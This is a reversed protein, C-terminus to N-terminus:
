FFQNHIWASFEEKVSKRYARSISIEADNDMILINKKFERIASFSVIYSNHCRIFEQHSLREYIMNIKDWIRYDGRVTVIKTIRKDREFYLIDKLAISVINGGVTSFVIKNRAFEEHYLLKDFVEQVHNEFQDKLIFHIHDTQYVDTAYYIYNTLFIIQCSKWRKNIRAAIDIGNTKKENSKETDDAEFEIDMFLADPPTGDYSKLDDKSHFIIFEIEEKIKQAYEEVIQKAKCCWIKDDDCIGVIM